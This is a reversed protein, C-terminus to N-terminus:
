CQVRCLLAKMERVGRKQSTIISQLIPKLEPCITYRLANESMAIAGEHHPIMERMFDANIQNTVRSNGMEDFMTEMIQSVRRQYREVDQQCSTLCLCQPLIERMNEISKTQSQIINRAIAQLPLSTTYRLINESMRIAALHHPIMQAIFNHSISHNLEATEMGIIMKDLIRYFEMMYAKTVDSLKDNCNM